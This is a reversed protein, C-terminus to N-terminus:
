DSLGEKQMVYMDMYIILWIILIVNNYLRYLPYVTSKVSYSGPWLKSPTLMGGGEAGGVGEEVGLICTYLTYLLWLTAPLKNSNPYSLM